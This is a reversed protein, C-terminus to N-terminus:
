DQQSEEPSDDEDDSQRLYRWLGFGLLALGLILIWVLTQMGTEPLLGAILGSPRLAGQTDSGSASHVGDQGQVQATVTVTSDGTDPYRYTEDDDVPIQVEFSCSFEDGVNLAEPPSCIEQPIVGDQPVEVPKGDKLLHLGALSQDKVQLGELDFVGDNTVKYTMPMTKADAPLLTTDFVDGTLKGLPTGEISKEVNLGAFENKAVVSWREGSRSTDTGDEVPQVNFAISRTAEGNNQEAADAPAGGPLSGGSPSPLAAIRDGTDGLSFISDNGEVGDNIESVQCDSDVPVNKITHEGGSKLTFEGNSADPDNPDSCSHRFTFEADQAPGGFANKTFKVDYHARPHYIDAGIVMLESTSSREAATKFTYERKKDDKKVDKAAITSLSSNPIERQDAAWRAYQTLPTRSGATAELQGREAFADGGLQLTCDVGVPLQLPRGGTPAEYTRPLETASTDALPFNETITTAAPDKCVVTATYGSPNAGELYGSNRVILNVPATRREVRNIFHLDTAKDAGPNPANKEIDKEEPTTELAVPTNSADQETVRCTAGAPVLAEDSNFSLVSNEEQTGADHFQKKTISSPIVSASKPRLHQSLFSLDGITSTRYGVAECQMTFNMEYNNPIEKLNGERGVLDKSLKVKATEYEYHNVLRVQNEDEEGSINFSPSTSKEDKLEKDEVANGAQQQTTWEVHSPRVFAKNDHEGDNIDLDLQGFQDGTIHCDAGVPVGTFTADGEGKVTVTQSFLPDGGGAAGAEQCVLNYNHENFIDAVNKGAALYQDRISQNPLWAKTNLKLDSIQRKYTNIFTVNVNGPNSFTYDRSGGVSTDGNLNISQELSVGVEPDIKPESITCHSGVNINASESKGVKITSTVHVGPTGDPNTCRLEVPFDQAVKADRSAQSILNNPDDFNVEKANSVTAQLFHYDHHIQITSQEGITFKEGNGIERPEGEDAAYRYDSDIGIPYTEGTDSTREASDKEEVLECETGLPVDNAAINASKGLALDLKASYGNDCRLDYNWSTPALSERGTSRLSINLGQGAPTFKNTATATNNEGDVSVKVPETDTEFNIGGSVQPTEEVFSCENGYPVGLKGNKDNLRPNDSVLTAEGNAPVTVKGELNVTRIQADDGSGEYVYRPGCRYTFTYSGPLTANNVTSEVNKRLAVAGLKSDFKNTVTVLNRSDGSVQRMTVIAANQAEANSLKKVNGSADTSSVTAGKFDATTTGTPEDEWVYCDANARIGDISVEDGNHSLSVKGEKVTKGGVECRYNVQFDLDRVDKNGAALGSVQKQIVLPFTKYGFETEERLEKTKGKEELWFHYYNNEDTEIPQGNLTASQKDVSITQDQEESFEPSFELICERGVPLDSIVASNEPKAKSLDLTGNRQGMNTGECRVSYKFAGGVEGDNVPEGTIRKSLKLSAKQYDYTNVADAKGSAPRSPNKGDPKLEVKVASNPNGTAKQGNWALSFDTGPPAEEGEAFKESVTCSAGEPLSRVVESIGSELEVDDELKVEPYANEFGSPAKCSYHLTFKRSQIDSFNAASGNVKKSLTLAAPSFKPQWSVSCNPVRNDNAPLLLTSQGSATDKNLDYGSPVNGAKIDFTQVGGDSNSLTCRWVPDYRDFAKDTPNLQSRFGIRGTANGHTDLRRMVTGSGGANVPIDTEGTNDSLFAHYDANRSVQTAAEEYSSDVKALDQEANFNLRNLSVGIAVAQKGPTRSGMSIQMTKPNDVGVVWSSHAGGVRSHCVFGRYRGDAIPGWEPLATPENGEGFRRECAKRERNQRLETPATVKVEDGAGGDVSIMEGIGPGGTSEADAVAFRYKSLSGEVGAREVKINSLTFRTFPDKGGEMQLVDQTINGTAKQFFGPKGFIAEHWTPNPQSTISTNPDKSSISLDFTITYDGVHKTVPGPRTMDSVDLWCIQNAWQEVNGTGTRFSCDGFNTGDSSNRNSGEAAAAHPTTLQPIVLFSAGIVISLVFAVIRVLVSSLSRFLSSASHAM